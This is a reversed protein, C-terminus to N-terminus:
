RITCIVPTQPAVTSKVQRTLDQVQICLRNIEQQLHNHIRDLNLPLTSLLVLMTRQCMRKLAQFQPEIPSKISYDLLTTFM